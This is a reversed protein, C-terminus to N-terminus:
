AGDAAGKEGRVLEAEILRVREHVEMLKPRGWYNGRWTGKAMKDARTRLYTEAVEVEEAWWNSATTQVKAADEEGTSRMVLRKGRRVVLRSLPERRGRTCEDILARVPPPTIRFSPFELDSERRYSQWIAGVQPACVGEFLCWLVRGLMYVEAAEQEAPNLCQWPINYGGGNGAGTAGVAADGAGEFGWSGQGSDGEGVYEEREPGPCVLLADGGAATAIGELSKIGAPRLLLDRLMEAYRERVEAPIEDDVALLRVYEVANVEPAAFECWVGRQEFDVMVADGADSMVVNDLRLDPYYTRARTRIHSLASALQGAWRLRTALSIIGHAQLLPVADRLSGPAHLEVTFGVVATKSGFRCRKTVLHAPRAIINPHPELRLLLHLEHYLYKSYSTLAKLIWPRRGDEGPLSPILVVCVSDHLQDLVQVDGLSVQPPLAELVAEEGAWLASLNAVSRLQRELYHTPAVHVGIRGVDLTLNEFVIRSGFPLARYMAEFPAFKAGNSGGGDSDRSDDDHNNNGDAAAFTEALEANHEQTWVQLKRLM